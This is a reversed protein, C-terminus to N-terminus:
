TSYNPNLGQNYSTCALSTLITHQVFMNKGNSNGKTVRTKLRFYLINSEFIVNGLGHICKKCSSLTYQLGTMRLPHNYFIEKLLNRLRGLCGTRISVTRM